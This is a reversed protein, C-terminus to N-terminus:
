QLSVNMPRLHQLSVEIADDLEGGYFAPTTIGLVREALEHGRYDVFIVTPTVSARYRTAIDSPERMRGDFDRIDSFRDVKIIRMIVRDTYEGSKRMPELFQERVQDCYSCGDQSFMILLPLNKERALQGDAHLDTTLPVKYAPAVQATTSLPLTLLLPLLSTALFRRLM